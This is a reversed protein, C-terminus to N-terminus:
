QPEDAGAWSPGETPRSERDYDRRPDGETWTALDKLPGTGMLTRARLVGETPGNFWEKATADAMAKDDAEIVIGDQVVVAPCKASTLPKPGVVASNRVTISSPASCNFTSTSSATVPHLAISSYTITASAGGLFNFAGFASSASGNESVHSNEMLLSGASLQVGGRNKYIRSRRVQVTCNSAEIAKAPLVGNGLVQVDDLYLKAGTAAGSCELIASGNTNNFRLNSLYVRSNPSVQIMPDANNTGDLTPIAPTGKVVAVIYGESMLPLPFMASSSGPRVKITTPKGPMLAMAAASLTCFPKLESGNGGLCENATNEVWIISNDPFCVGEQLDCATNPCETHDTCKACSGTEEDCGPKDAPCALTDKATCEVCRGKTEHCVTKDPDLDACMKGIQGLASCPGCMGVGVCYPTPDSCDPDEIPANPDNPDCLPEGTTTDTTPGTSTSPDVTTSTETATSPMTTGTTEVITTGSTGSTPTTTTGTPADTTSPATSTSGGLVLVCGEEIDGPAVCGNNDPTCKSCVQDGSCPSDMGNELMYACHNQNVFPCGGLFASAAFAALPAAARRLVHINAFLESM